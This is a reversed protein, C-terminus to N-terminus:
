TTHLHGDACRNTKLHTAPRPTHGFNVRSNVLNTVFLVNRLFHIRVIIKQLSFLLWRSMGGEPHLMMERSPLIVYTNGCTYRREIDLLFVAPFM